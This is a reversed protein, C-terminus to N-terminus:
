LVPESKFVPAASNRLVLNVEGIDESPLVKVIFIGMMPCDAHEVFSFYTSTRNNRDFVRNCLVLPIVYEGAPTEKRTSIALTQNVTKFNSVIVVPPVFSVDMGIPLPKLTKTNLPFGYSRSPLLGGSEFHIERIGGGTTRITINVTKSEGAHITIEQGDPYGFDPSNQMDWTQGLSKCWKIVTLKDDADPAPKGDVFMHLMFTFTPNWSMHGGGPLDQYIGTVNPGITVYAKVTYVHNPEVDFEAPKIRADIISETM